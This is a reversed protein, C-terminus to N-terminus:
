DERIWITRFGVIGLKQIVSSIDKASVNLVYVRNFDNFLERGATLGMANLLREARYANKVQRFSGVHLRYVADADPDPLSPIIRINEPKVILTILWEFFEDDFEAIDVSFNTRQAGPAPPQIDTKPAARVADARSLARDAEEKAAAARAADLLASARALEEKAAAARATESQAASRATELLSAVRDAETRATNLTTDAEARAATLVADAEARAASLIAESQIQAQVGFNAASLIAEAQAKAEAESHAASLIAESESRAKSLSADSESQAKSLLSEAELRAASIIAEAEFHAAHLIAEARAQAEAQAAAIVAAAQAAAAQAAADATISAIDPAPEVAPIVPTHTILVVSDESLGLAKWADFSLDIIRQSSMLIRGTIIVEIEKGNATNIIKVTSNLPINNHAACLGETTMEQTARGRQTFVGLQSFAPFAIVSLCFLVFLFRKM